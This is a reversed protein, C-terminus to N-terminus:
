EAIETTSTVECIKSYLYAFYVVVTNESGKKIAIRMEDVRFSTELHSTQDSIRKKPDLIPDPNSPRHSM